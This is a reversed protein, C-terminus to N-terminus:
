RLGPTAVSSAASGTIKVSAMGALNIDHAPDGPSRPHTAASAPPSRRCVRTVRPHTYWCPEATGPSSVLVVYVDSPARVWVPPVM